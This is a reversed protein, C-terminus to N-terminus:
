RFSEDILIKNKKKSISDFCKDLRNMKESYM